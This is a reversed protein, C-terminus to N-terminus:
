HRHVSVACWMRGLIGHSRARFAIMVSLEFNATNL